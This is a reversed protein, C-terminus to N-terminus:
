IHPAHPAIRSDSDGSRASSPASHMPISLSVATGKALPKISVTGNVESVRRLVGRIGNGQPSGEAYAPDIGMGDDAITTTLWGNSAAVQVRVNHAKAHRIINSVIERHASTFCRFVPYDLRLPADDIDSLPWHLELGATTLREGTEHRLAAIMEGLPPQDTSLGSVITRIDAIADRLLRQTDSLQTKYLGSLLRAGVDDHLDRAIRRREEIGGREYANRSDETYRMLRVLERALEQHATGFLRQGRWPFRLTLAPTDAAPPLLMELGENCVTVADVPRLSPEVAIPDFLQKLLERWQGSREAASAAFSVDIVSRFLEHEELSRRAVFRNWLRGRLPLYIFGVALLAIGFSTMQQLHLITILAADLALLLLMGGTYFLIRFAWESLDFLRYRAVGLALGAYILLFFGFAYGQQMAPASDFLIPTIVISVFAGAGVIVSLGLWSLAARARPDARNVFWQVGVIGVIALMAILTPLQSGIAQTPLLRLIDAVLWPVFIGPVIWLARLPVLHRPYCLFMCIMAMGFGLAGVHNLASLARFLGGDIALERSSYIAATYASLMIMAGSLAFLRTVIDAPRMALVWAGILLSGAGTIIQVWFSLPLDALPRRSPAVTIHGAQGTELVLMGGRLMAAIEGQRQMFRRVTEYSEFTDPEEVLDDPELTMAPAAKSALRIASLTAPTSLTQAPGAPHVAAIRVAQETPDAVLTLGLWPQGLSIWLVLAISALSLVIAGQMVRNPLWLGM